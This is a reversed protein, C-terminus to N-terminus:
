QKQLTKLLRSLLSYLEIDPEGQSVALVEEDEMDETYDVKQKTAIRKSRREPPHSVKPEEPPGKKTIKKAVGPSMINPRKTAKPQEIKVLKQKQQGKDVDEQKRKFQVKEVDMDQIEVKDDDSEDTPVVMKGQIHEHRTLRPPKRIPREGISESDSTNSGESDRAKRKLIKLPTPPLEELEDPLPVNMGDKNEPTNDHDNDDMVDEPDTNTELDLTNSPGSEEDDMQIHNEPEEIQAKDDNDRTDLAHKVTSTIYKSQCILM